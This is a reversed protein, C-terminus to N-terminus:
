FCQVFLKNICPDAHFPDLSVFFWINEGLLPQFCTTCCVVFTIPTSTIALTTKRRERPLNGSEPVRLCSEQDCTVIRRATEKIQNRLCIPTAAPNKYVQFFIDPPPRRNFDTLQDFIDVRSNEIKRGIWSNWSRKSGRIRASSRPIM